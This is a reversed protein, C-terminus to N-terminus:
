VRHVTKFHDVPVSFNNNHRIVNAGIPHKKSFDNLVDLAEPTFRISDIISSFDSNEHPNRCKALDELSIKLKLIAEYTSM